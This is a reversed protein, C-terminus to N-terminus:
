GSRHRGYKRILRKVAKLMLADASLVIQLAGHERHPDDEQIDEADVTASSLVTGNKLDYIVLSLASRNSFSSMSLPNNFGISSAGNDIVKGTVNILFDCGSYKHLQKLDYPSPTFGIQPPMLKSTKITELDLLSDGLIRKFEKYTKKYLRENHEARWNTTTENLIWKGRSFDIYKQEVDIYYRGQLCSQSMLLILFLLVFYFRNKKM